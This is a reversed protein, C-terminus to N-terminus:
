LWNQLDFAQALIIRSTRMDILLKKSMQDCDINDNFYRLMKGKVVVKMNENM